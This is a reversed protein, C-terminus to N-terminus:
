GLLKATLSEKLSQLDRLSNMSNRRAVQSRNVIKTFKQQLAFPPLPAPTSLLKAQSINLMSGSTGTAQKTLQHRFAPHRFLYCLYENTAQRPEATIRWLKDPLFRNDVDVDVLCCAAVLERTNARSFLLDGRRPFVLPRDVIERDVPKAQESLFWGTSVASVKLVALDQDSLERDSSPASWGSEISSVMDAVCSEPWKSSEGPVGFMDIFVARIFEDAVRIAKHRKHRLSEAKDLIKVVRVQEAKEPLTIQLDLFRPVSLNSINTTQRGCSRIAAQSAESALWRYLYNPEIVGPKARVIAIFGGATARYSLSPVQTVKGVLNWSNASSILVDGEQLFLEDRRVFSEPVAILDNVELMEQINKTRMCVVADRQDVSVLEEPRFTIGRIFDVVDGLRKIQSM